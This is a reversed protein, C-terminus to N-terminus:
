SEGNEWTNEVVPPINFVRKEPSKVASEVIWTIFM